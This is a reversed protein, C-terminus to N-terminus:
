AARRMTGALALMITEQGSPWDHMVQAYGVRIVKYGRLELRADHRYYSVKQDGGHQKGDIQVILRNGILFDVRHGHLWIQARIPVRLWRLRTKFLTELGSDSFPTCLELVRRAEPGLRLAALAEIDTLGKNLASEWTALAHEFSQCRAVNELMNPLPDVLADPSRLVIPRTWHVEANADVHDGRSRAAVHPRAPQETVWLGLRGAQTACSLVVGHRAAFLLHRDLAPDAVWGRRPRLVLGSAVAVRLARPSDGLEHM